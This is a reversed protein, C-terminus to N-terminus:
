AEVIEDINQLRGAATIVVAHDGPLTVTPGDPVMSRAGRIVTSILVGSNLNLERLPKGATQM